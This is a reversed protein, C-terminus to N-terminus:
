LEIVEARTMPLFDLIRRGEGHANPVTVQDITDGEVKKVTGDALKVGLAQGEYARDNKPDFVPRLQHRSNVHGCKHHDDSIVAPPRQERVKTAPKSARTQSPLTPSKTQSPLAPSKTRSPPVPSKTKSPLAGGGSAESSAM